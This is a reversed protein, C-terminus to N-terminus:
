GITNAFILVSHIAFFGWRIQRTFSHLCGALALYLMESQKLIKYGFNLLLSSVWLWCLM